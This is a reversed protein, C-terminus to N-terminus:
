RTATKWEKLGLVNGDLEDPDADTAAWVFMDAVAEPDRGEGGSLATSVRGPDLCGVPHETDAAFGRAVAEATAKSIAYAGYGSQPDRAVAGTPVLVRAGDNLHPLAERITAFVGRGNIRWHDDVATYSEEDTPTEGAEGHYVGAAAVVADIGRSDGTRSATEVLREVDFEDRVDTRVGAAATAGASELTEVTESVESDNRAGIVVTAGDAAFAEAVARGIGRTGGTVVVTGDM